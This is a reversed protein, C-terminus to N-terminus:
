FLNHLRVFKNLGHSHLPPPSAASPRMLGFVSGLYARRTGRSFFAGYLVGVAPQVPLPSFLDGFLNARSLTSSGTSAPGAYWARPTPPPSGGVPAGPTRFLAYGPLKTALHLRASCRWTNSLPTLICFIINFIYNQM